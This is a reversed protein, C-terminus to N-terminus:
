AKPFRYRPGKPKFDKFEPTLPLNGSIFAVFYPNGTEDVAEMARTEYRANVPQGNLSGKGNKGLRVQSGIKPNFSKNLPIPVAFSIM